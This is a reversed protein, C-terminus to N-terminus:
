VYMGFINQSPPNRSCEHFHKMAFVESQWKHLIVLTKDDLSVLSHVNIVDKLIGMPHALEQIYELDDIIGEKDEETLIQEFLFVKDFLQDTTFNM